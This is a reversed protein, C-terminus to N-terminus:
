YCWGAKCSVKNPGKSSCEVDRGRGFEVAGFWQLM